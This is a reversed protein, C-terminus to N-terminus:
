FDHAPHAGLIFTTQVFMSHGVRTPTGGGEVEEQFQYALRITSFESAKFTINPEVGILGIDDGDVTKKGLTRTFDFRVGTSVQDTWGYQPYAYFGFLRETEVEGSLYRWWVESQWLFALRKGRRLKGVLDWGFIQRKVKDVDTRSLYSLGSQWGMHGTEFYTLLKGYHTLVRPREGEEHSHGFTFGNTAGLTLDLYFPLPLLVSAEVGTDEIAEAGQQTKGGVVLQHIKPAMVFPWDHRHFQNLRGIGLFYQGVKIRTRPILKSSSIYAEHIEFFSAGGEPHAALSLAGDFLHDIPGYLMVEAERVEVKDAANSRENLGFDGVVDAAVSIQLGSADIALVKPAATVSLIILATTKVHSAAWVGAKSFLGRGMRM